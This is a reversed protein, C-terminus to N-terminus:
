VEPRPTQDARGWAGLVMEPWQSTQATLPMGSGPDQGLLQSHSQLLSIGGEETETEGSVPGGKKVQSPMNELLDAHNM